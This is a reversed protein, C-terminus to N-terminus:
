AEAGELEYVEICADPCMMYCSGCAICKEAYKALSPYVGTSNMQTDPELVKVPCARVCLYCGKCRERDIEVKGRKAM